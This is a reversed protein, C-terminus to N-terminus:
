QGRQDFGYERIQSLAVKEWHEVKVDDTITLYLPVVM